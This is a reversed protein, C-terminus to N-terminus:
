TSTDGRKQIFTLCMGATVLLLAILFPALGYRRRAGTRARRVFREVTYFGSNLTYFCVPVLFIASSFFFELHLAKVARWAGSSYRAQYWGELRGQLVLTALLSLVVIIVMLVVALRVSNFSM